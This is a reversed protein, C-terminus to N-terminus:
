FDVLIDIAGIVIWQEAKELLPQGGVREGGATYM